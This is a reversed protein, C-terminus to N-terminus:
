PGWYDFHFVTAPQIEFEIETGCKITHRGPAIPGRMHIKHPWQKGDVYIPGCAGGNNDDVVLYTLGDNSKEAKGRLERKQCGVALVTLLLLLCFMSSFGNKM